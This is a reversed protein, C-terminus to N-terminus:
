RNTIISKCIWLYGLFGEPSFNFNVDGSVIPSSSPTNYNLWKAVQRAITLAQWLNKRHTKWYNLQRHSSTLSQITTNLMKDYVVHDHAQNSTFQKTSAFLEISPLPIAVDGPPRHSTLPCGYSLQRTQPSCRFGARVWCNVAPM